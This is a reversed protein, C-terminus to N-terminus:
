KISDLLNIYEQKYRSWKHKSFYEFGKKSYKKLLDRNKHLLIIKESLEIPDGASFLLVTGSFNDKMLKVDSSIVALKKIFYEHMKIPMQHDTSYGKPFPIIGVSSKGLETNLTNFDIFDGSFFVLDSLKKEEILSKLLNADEGGGFIYLKINKYNNKAIIEMADLLIDIGNREIAITSPFILRLEDINFDKSKQPSFVDEDAANIIEIIKDKKIKNQVFRKTCSSNVSIIYDAYKLSYREELYLLKILLNDLRKKFKQAFLEPMVDHVDMIITAGFLKAIITSFVLFNPMNNVHIIKYMDKTFTKKSINFFCFFLFYIYCLIFSLKNNGKYQGRKSYIVNVGDIDSKEAEDLTYFDVKYGGEVAAQAERIVRSDLSLTTYAIMAIKKNM